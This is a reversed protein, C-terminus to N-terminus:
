VRIEYGKTLEWIALQNAQTAVKIAHDRQSLVQTVDIYSTGTTSDYWTGLYMGPLALQFQNDIIFTSIDLVTLVPGDVAVETDKNCSVAYLEPRSPNRDVLGGLERQTSLSWTGGQNNIHHEVVNRIFSM